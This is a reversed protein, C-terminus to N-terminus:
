LRQAAGPRGSPRRLDKARERDTPIWALGADTVQTNHLFLVKLTAHGALHQLGTDTVQTAGLDLKQLVKLRSLHQLGTGTVKTRDLSLDELHGLACLYRLGADTVQTGGLDLIELAPLGRLHQLDTDTLAPVSLDVFIVKDFMQMRDKGILRRLWPHQIHDQIVYGGLKEIAQITARQRYGRLVVWGSGIAFLALLGLFIRVSVLRRRRARPPQDPLLEISEAPLTAM